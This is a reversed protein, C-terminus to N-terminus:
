SKHLSRAPVGAVMDGAAVDKTVVANAGVVAGTGITVGPLITAGRGVWVNACLRIPKAEHGTERASEGAIVRHNADRISSYEGVMVGAELVISAHSVLHVGRSLVVGDGIEIRGTNQTEWHLERYLYLNKGLQINGTGQVEVKGLVVVSPDLKGTIAAKLQTHAWLRRLPALKQTLYAFPLLLLVLLKKM